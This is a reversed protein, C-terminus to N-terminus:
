LKQALPPQQDAGRGPRKEGRSLGSVWQVPPQTPGLAPSSPYPFDREWRSEFWPRDLGYRTAIGVSGDGEEKKKYCQIVWSLAYTM